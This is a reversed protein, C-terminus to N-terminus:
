TCYGSCTYLLYNYRYVCPLERSIQMRQHLEAVIFHLVAHCQSCMCDKALCNYNVDFNVRLHFTSIFFFAAITITAAHVVRLWFNFYM